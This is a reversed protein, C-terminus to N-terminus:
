DFRSEAELRSHIPPHDGILNESLNEYIQEELFGGEKM